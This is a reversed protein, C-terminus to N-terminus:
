FGGVVLFKGDTSTTLFGESGGYQGATLFPTTTGTSSDITATIGAAGSTTFEKLTAQSPGKSATNKTQLVVINGPTFQAYTTLTVFVALTLIFIKKM